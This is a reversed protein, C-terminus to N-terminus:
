GKYDEDNQPAGGVGERAGVGFPKGAAAWRWSGGLVCGPTGPAVNDSPNKNVRRADRTALNAAARGGGAAQATLIPAPAAGAHAWGLRGRSASCRLPAILRPSAIPRLQM